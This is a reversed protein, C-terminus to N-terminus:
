RAHTVPLEAKSTAGQQRFSRTLAILRRKWASKEERTALEKELARLSLMGEGNASIFPAFLPCGGAKPMAEFFSLAAEPTPRGGRGNCEPIARIIRSAFETTETASTAQALDWVYDDPHRIADFPDSIHTRRLYDDLENACEIGCMGTTIRRQLPALERGPNGTGALVRCLNEWSRPSPWALRIVEREAADTEGIGNTYVDQATPGLHATGDRPEKHILQPQTRLFDVVLKRWSKEESPLTEWNPVWGGTMGDFFEKDTPSFSLFMLRNCMPASIREYSAASDEPNMAGVICVDDPLKTGDAFRREGIIKLLGAQVSRPTNSFEDFFLVHPRGDLCRHQWVPRLYNTYDHHQSPYPIGVVDTPDLQSGVVCIPEGCGMEHSWERITATKGAGPYSVLIVPILAQAAATLVAKTAKTGNTGYYDAAEISTNAM